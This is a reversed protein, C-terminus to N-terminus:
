QSILASKKKKEGIKKKKIQGHIQKWAKCTSHTETECDTPQAERVGAILTDMSTIWTISWLYNLSSAREQSLPCPSSIAEDM